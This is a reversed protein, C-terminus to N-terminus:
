KSPSGTTWDLPQYRPDLTDDYIELARRDIPPEAPRNGRFGDAIWRLRRTDAGEPAILLCREAEARALEAVARADLVLSFYALGLLGPDCPARDPLEGM